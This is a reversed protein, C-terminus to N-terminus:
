VNLEALPKTYGKPAVHLTGQQEVTVSGHGTDDVLKNQEDM